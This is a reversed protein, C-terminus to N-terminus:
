DRQSQALDKQERERLEAAFSARKAADAEWWQWGALVSLVLLTAAASWALTLARRQQRLELSLLDEKPIGHLAAAVDAALEIFDNQRASAGGRYRRLDIWRPEASL